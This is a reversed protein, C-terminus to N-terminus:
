HADTQAELLRTLFNYDPFIENKLREIRMIDEHSIFGKTRHQDVNKMRQSEGQETKKKIINAIMNVIPKDGM